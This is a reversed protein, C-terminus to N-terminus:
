NHDATSNASNRSNIKRRRCQRPGVPDPLFVPGRRLTVTETGAGTSVRGQRGSKDAQGLKSRQSRGKPAGPHAASLNGGNSPTQERWQPWERAAVAGTPPSVVKQVRGHRM